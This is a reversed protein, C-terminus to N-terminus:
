KLKKNRSVQVSREIWRDLEEPDEMIEEPVLWYSMTTSRHKGRSYVFPRSERREFEERNSEDVKFYLAGDVIIAFIVGDKYIGWGGFMARSHIGPINGLLDQVVYDRFSQDQKM